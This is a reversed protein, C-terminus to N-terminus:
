KAKNFEEAYKDLDKQVKSIADHLAKKATKGKTVVKLVVPKSYHEKRWVGLEVDSDENLYVRVIEAITQNDLQVELENKEEKLINIEM